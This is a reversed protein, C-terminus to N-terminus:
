QKPQEQNFINHWYKQNGDVQNEQIGDGKNNNGSNLFANVDLVRKLDLLGGIVQRIFETYCLCIGLQITRRWDSVQQVLAFM